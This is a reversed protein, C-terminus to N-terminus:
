TGRAGGIFADMRTKSKSASKEHSGGNFVKLAPADFEDTWRKGNLYSSAHIPNADPQSSRWKDFWGDRVARYADRRDDMSLKKWAKRAADKNKKSPWLDWFADFGELPSALRRSPEKSGERIDLEPEPKQSADAACQAQVAGADDLKQNQTTKERQADWRQRAAHTGNQTRNSRDVLAKEARPNTLMGDSEVVKGESLLADLAKRFAAKPAGCRRSLRGDDRAIPGDNEYILCLLTIYVGREAPSM